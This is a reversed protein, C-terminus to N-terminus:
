RLRRFGKFYQAIGASAAQHQNGNGKALFRPKLRLFPSEVWRFSAEAMLWTLGFAVATAGMSSVDYAGRAVGTAMYILWLVPGHFIYFGYSVKGLRQVIPSAVLPMKEINALAFFFLANLATYGWIYAMLPQLYIPWGLGDLGEGRHTRTFALLCALSLLTFSLVVKRASVSACREVFSNERRFNLLAGFAFADFHSPTVFYIIRGADSILRANTSMVLGLEGLRILPGAAILWICLRPLGSRSVLLVCLPWILYFQEEVSLSWLQGFFASGLEPRVRFFNYTFTLLYPLHERVHDRLAVALESDGLWAYLAIAALFAFYAPFIRLVRRGYFNKFYEGPGSSRQKAELLVATILYGSLVFFAQVGVWGCALFQSHCLFVGGICLGRFGDLRPQLRM